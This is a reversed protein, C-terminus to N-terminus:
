RRSYIVWRGDTAKVTRVSYGKLKAMQAVKQAHSKTDSSGHISYNKGGFKRKIPYGM